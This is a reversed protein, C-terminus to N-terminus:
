SGNEQNSQQTSGLLGHYWIPLTLRNGICNLDSALAGHGNRNSEPGNYIRADLLRHM